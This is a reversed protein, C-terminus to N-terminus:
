KIMPKSSTLNQMQLIQDTSSCMHDLQYPLEPGAVDLLKKVNDLISDSDPDLDQWATDLIKLLSSNQIQWVM